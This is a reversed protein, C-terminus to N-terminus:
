HRAPVAGSWRRMYHSAGTCFVSWLSHRGNEPHVRSNSGHTTDQSLCPVRGRGFPPVEGSMGGPCEHHCLTVPAAPDDGRQDEPGEQRWVGPQLPPFFLAYAPTGLVLSIFIVPTPLASRTVGRYFPAGGKAMTVNFRGMADAFRSSVGTVQENIDKLNRLSSPRLQIFPKAPTLGLGKGAHSGKYNSYDSANTLRVTLFCFNGEIFQDCMVIQDEEGSLLKGLDVVSVALTTTRINNTSEDRMRMCAQMKLLDPDSQRLNISLNFAGQASGKTFAVHGGAGRSEDIWCYTYTQHDGPNSLDVFTDMPINNTFLRLTGQLKLPYEAVKLGSM